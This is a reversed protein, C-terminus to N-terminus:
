GQKYYVAGSVQIAASLNFVFANGISTVFYPEDKLDLLLTEVRPLPGTMDTSAGDRIRLDMPAQTVLWLQFVYIKQEAVAPIITNNGSAAADIKLQKLVDSTLPM